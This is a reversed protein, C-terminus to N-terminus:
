MLEALKVVIAMELPVVLGEDQDYVTSLVGQKKVLIM